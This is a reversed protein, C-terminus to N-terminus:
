GDRGGEQTLKEADEALRILAEGLVRADKPTVCVYQCPDADDDIRVWVGYEDEALGEQEGGDVWAEFERGRADQGSISNPSGGREWVIM